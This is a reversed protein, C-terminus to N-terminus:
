VSKQAFNNILTLYYEYREKPLESEYIVTKGNTLNRKINKIIDITLNNPEPENNTNRRDILYNLIRAPKWNENLREIALIIEHVLIKRKSLNVEVQTLTKKEKKEENRCIIEGNKIRTITHRPLSLTEQIETNKHGEGILKRVQIIIDDSVGGKAKRISASMKKKTETSFTKGFNHNGEGKMKESKDKYIQKLLIEKCIQKKIDTLRVKEFYGEKGNENQNLNDFAEIEHKERNCIAYMEEKIKTDTTTLFTEFACAQNYKVILHEKILQIFKLCDSQKYIKFKQEGDINGFGLLKAIYVLVDPTNKQTISIYFKSFKKKNIYFCGEADFLGAIYEITIKEFYIENIKIKKNYDSCTKYLEEKENKKNQLNVLAVFDNLCKIQSNKIVINNKIYNLIINCENSRIILNYQNRQTHKDYYNNDDIINVIKDNRSTSSTISGGFHYRIIQLINTRSQTISLGPQYGDAIKRIFICGDGDIFGAIYSPHPPNTKFRHLQKENDNKIDETLM